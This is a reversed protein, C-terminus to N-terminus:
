GMSLSERCRLKVDVQWGSIGHKDEREWGAIKGIRNGLEAAPRRDWSWDPIEPWVVNRTGRVARNGEGVVKGVGQGQLKM